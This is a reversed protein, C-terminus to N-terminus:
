KEAEGLLAARIIRGHAGCGHRGLDTQLKTMLALFKASGPKGQFRRASIVVQHIEGPDLLLIRRAVTLFAPITEAMELDLMRASPSEPASLRRQTISTQLEKDQRALRARLLAERLDSM